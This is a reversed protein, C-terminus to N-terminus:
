SPNEGLRKRVNRVAASDHSYMRGGPSRWRGDEMRTWAEADHARHRVTRTGSGPAVRVRSRASGALPDGAVKMTMADLDYAERRMRANSARTVERFAQTVVRALEHPNGAVGAWGRALPSSVRYKGDPLAEVQLPVTSVLQRPQRGPLPPGALYSM